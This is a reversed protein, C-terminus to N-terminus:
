TQPQVNPRVYGTALTWVRCSAGSFGVVTPGPTGCRTQVTISRGAPIEIPSVLHYDYDRFNQLAFTLVARGDVIVDIRGTDGQPNQLVLDTIILTTNAAATRAPATRTANAAAFTEFRHQIGPPPAPPPAVPPPTTTQTTVPPTTTQPATPDGQEQGKLIKDQNAEMRAMPERVADKAASEVAPKMLGLWLGAGLLALALLAALVRGAGRPVVPLQLTTGDLTVPPAGDPAVLVQFPRTVPQGRWLTRRHKLSVGTFAARGAGVTLAGPRSTVTLADDQDSGSIGVNVPVNGRNDIAIEHRARLRGKSTRPRIEATTEVFPLVRVVGEPVVATDPRQSPLVRVAFPVEGAGVRGSRPPHFLVSVRTADGPYLSVTAPDLSTWAAAEGLVALDYSEVIDSSNRLTLWCAAETGPSVDVLPTELTAVTTMRGVTPPPAHPVPDREPVGEPM